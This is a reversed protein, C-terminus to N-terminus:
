GVNFGHTVAACTLLQLKLLVIGFFHIVIGLELFIILSLRLMLLHLKLLLLHARLCEVLLLRVHWLVVLHIWSLLHDRCGALDRALSRLNVM